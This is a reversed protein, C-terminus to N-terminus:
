SKWAEKPNFFQKIIKQENLKEKKLKKAEIIKDLLNYNAKKQEWEARLDNELKVIQVDLDDMDFMLDFVCDM